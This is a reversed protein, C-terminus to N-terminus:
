VSMSCEGRKNVCPDHIWEKSTQPYKTNPFYREFEKLPLSLYDHESQSLSEGLIGALTQFMDLIGTNM